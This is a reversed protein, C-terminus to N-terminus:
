PSVVATRVIAASNGATSTTILRTAPGTAPKWCWRPTVWEKRATGNLAAITSKVTHSHHLHRGGFGICCRAGSSSWVGGGGGVGGRQPNSNRYPQRPESLWM